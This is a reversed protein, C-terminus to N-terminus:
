RDYTLVVKLTDEPRSDILRYAEGARTFPIRHTILEATALATGLVLDRAAANLRTLDWGPHRRQACGNVTMSSILTIRNRHYERGLLLGGQEGHYSAITVVRGCTRVSRIAQHLLAYSGSAEIAVDAGDDGAQEAVMGALDQGPEPLLPCIGLKRAAEARLPHRDVGIVKGAGARLALQAALLGVVGLGTVLMTEGVRIGADHVGGLAVRALPFFVAREPDTGEPLAGAVAEDESALHLSGHPRDLYVLQGPQVATVGPGTELVAAVLEYGPSVPYGRGPVGDRYVRLRADWGAHLAPAQGHYWGLETGHSIGSVVARALVQGPGPQEAPAPIISVTGPASIVLRQPTTSGAHDRRATGTM